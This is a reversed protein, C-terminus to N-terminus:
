PEIMVKISEKANMQTEFAEKIRDLPFVHTVVQKDKVKGAKILEFSGQFNGGGYCGFMRIAKRLLSTKPMGPRALSPNFEFSEEYTAAIMIKGDPRVMDISQLFTVPKGAVEVVIDAGRGSTDDMVRKVVDEKGANILIDAGLEKAVQLRKESVESVIVKSVGLAKLNVVTGLGIIGAGLVVVVDDTKPEARKVIGVGVSIPEILVGDHYSMTEALKVVNRNLLIVPFWVYEAFGGHLGWIGGVKVNPCRIYEKRQCWECKFCPLLATGWVRDGLKVDTVKAGVEVM